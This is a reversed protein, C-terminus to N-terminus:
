SASQVTGRVHLCVLNWPANPFTVHNDHMQSPSLSGFLAWTLATLRQVTPYLSKDQPLPSGNLSSSCHVPTGSLPLAKSLGGQLLVPRPSFPILSLCTDSLM